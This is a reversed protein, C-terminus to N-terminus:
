YEGVCWMWSDDKPQPQMKIWELCEDKTHFYEMTAEGGVKWKKVAIYRM